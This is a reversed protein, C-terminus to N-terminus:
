KPATTETSTKQGQGEISVSDDRSNFILSEGTVTGHVPDSFRPPEAATGTLVYEGDEGSYVLQAGSGRRGQSNVVVHGRATLRDVQASGGNAAAHNGPPLLVLEVENSTTTAGDTDAQVRGVDGGGHLIAKREAESYKLDGAKVRVISPSGAKRDGLGAVTGANKGNRSSNLLVINVPEATGASRATLTQRERNLVIVPANISNADQWLRAHGRFTVEGQAQGAPRHLDAEDSIVHAPGTGGLGVAGADKTKGKGDDLWTARVNGRAFANGSAQAVDVRDAALQLSGDDIHPKGTLHLWEGTGEYAAHGSTARLAAPTAEGAKASPAQTLTVNGDVTASEIETSDVAPGVGRKGGKKSVVAKTDAAKKELADKGGSASFHVELRDGSTTQRAGAATTQELSAHGEGVMQRLQQREGFVGTVTDATMKSPTVTGGSRQSEGSIVVGGTGRIQALQAHGKGADRFDVDAVPSSWDRRVRLEPQNGETVTTQESHLTAGRELHVHQLDGHRDFVLDATPASGTAVRDETSSNMTVGGELRGREPRSQEGFELSGRPANVRAKNATTLSFGESAELRVASGDTRFYLLAAGASAQGERYNAVAGRMRCVLDSRAMEAHQARLLVPAGGRNVNLEVAHDLVLRGNESDFTAGVSSGNGQLTSFEVHEATAATGTKQDFTLGSTKVDIQGAAAGNEMSALPSEKGKEALGAKANPAIAPAVGPREIVIEVPGAAKATGGKQDYEFENGTIRDATKGDMSYLEIQVHQLLLRNGQALQVAKSARLKYYTHGGRTHTFVIDNQEQKIDVGLKKPIERLNLKSRWQGVVLFAILAAIVLGGVVLVLTRLREITVLM